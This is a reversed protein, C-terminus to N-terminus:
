AANKIANQPNAPQFGSKLMAKELCNVAYDLDSTTHNAMLTFRFRCNRRGVVPYVVPTCWVGDDLLSQYMIGLKHEDGIIVPVIPSEHNPHINFGLTRLSSTFHQINRRLNDLITKDRTFIDLAKHVGAVTSPPLSVSFMQSRSFFRLWQILEKSGTIFGGIGGCIKSFTGMIVDTEKALNYKETIGFGNPGVVGFCHAQDVYIRSNYKRALQFIEDYTSTNGDMSFVGETIVLCGNFNQRERILISELHELSNHKFFRSNARSLAMADQISAHCLQDAVILDNPNTLATIAGINAAFGSNFLLTDEQKHIRSVTQCLEVHLDTLGTSVPSGTSSFGYKDLADKCAQLVEPHAALGLYDNSGMVLYDRRNGKRARALNVRPGKSETRITYYGFKPSAEWQTHFDAFKQVRDFLDVNNFESEAFHALTFQNPDLEMKTPNKSLDIEFFHSLSETVPIKSDITSFALDWNGDTLELRRVALRGLYLEGKPSSLKSNSIISAINITDETMKDQVCSVCLGSASCDIVDLEIMEGEPSSITLKVSGV